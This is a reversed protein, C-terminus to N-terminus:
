RFLVATTSPSEIRCRENRRVSETQNTRVVNFEAFLHFHNLIHRASGGGGACTIPTEVISTVSNSAIIKTNSSRQM